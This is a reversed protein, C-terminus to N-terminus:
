SFFQDEIDQYIKIPQESAPFLDRLLTPYYGSLGNWIELSANSKVLSRFFEHPKQPSIIYIKLGHKRIAEVLIENIHEDRFGYGIILLRRNQHYLASEFIEFNWKLIPEKEIQEKKGGGIVMPKLWNQSGHLKIYFINSGELYAEGNEDIEKQKPLESLGMERLPALPNQSSRTHRIGPCKILGNKYFREIFLDQNITFFFGKEQHKAFLNIFVNLKNLDIDSHEYKEKINLDLKYFAEELSFKISGKEIDNYNKSDLISWYITEFDFKLNPSLMLDRVKKEKQVLKHNFIHAWMEDALFGGFNATFGAGTFLVFKTNFKM